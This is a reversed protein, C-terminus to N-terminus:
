VRLFCLLLMASVVFSLHVTVRASDDTTALVVMLSMKEYNLTAM